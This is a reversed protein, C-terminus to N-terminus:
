SELDWIKGDDRKFRRDTEFKRDQSIGVVCSGIMKTSPPNLFPLPLTPPTMKTSLLTKM